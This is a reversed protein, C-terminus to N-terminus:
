TNSGCTGRWTTASCGPGTSTPAGDTAALVRRIEAFAPAFEGDQTGDAGPRALIHIDEAEAHGVAVGAGRALGAHDKGGAAGAGGVQDGANGRGIHVRHGHHGEGAVYGRRAKRYGRAEETTAEAAATKSTAM